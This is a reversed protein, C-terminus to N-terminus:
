CYMAGQNVEDMACEECLTRVCGKVLSGDPRYLRMCLEWQEDPPLPEECSQCPEVDPDQNWPADPDQEWTGDPYNM